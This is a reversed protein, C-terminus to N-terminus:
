KCVIDRILHSTKDFVSELVKCDSECRKVMIPMHEKMRFGMESWVNPSVGMKQDHTQLLGAYQSMSRRSVLTNYRLVYYLDIHHRRDVPTLGWKLLRTNLFPLDFGKGYYTVWCHYKELEEKAERVLRQDNGPQGITKSFVTRGYPKFSVCISSSYDGRLGSAEMDFFVLGDKVQKIIKLYDDVEIKM